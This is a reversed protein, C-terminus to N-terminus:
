KKGKAKIQTTSTDLFVRQQLRWTKDTPTITIIAEDGNFTPAEATYVGDGNHELQIIADRDAFTPHRMAVTLQNPWPISTDAVLVGKIEEKFDLTVALGLRRAIDEEELSRNITRGQKYWDAAVVDDEKMAATVVLATGLVISSAPIAVMLWFYPVKYWPKNGQRSSGQNM